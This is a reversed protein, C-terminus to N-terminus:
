LNRGIERWVGADLALLTLSSSSTSLYDTAGLLNIFASNRVRTNASEFLLTIM